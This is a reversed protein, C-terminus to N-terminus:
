DGLQRMAGRSVVSRLTFDGGWDGAAEASFCTANASKHFNIDLDEPMRDMVSKV